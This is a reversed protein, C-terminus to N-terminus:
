ASVDLKSGKHCWSFSERKTKISEPLNGFETSKLNILKVMLNYCAFNRYDKLIETSLEQAHSKSIIFLTSIFKKILDNKSEEPHNKLLFMISETSLKDQKAINFTLFLINTTYHVKKNISLQRNKLVFEYVLTDFFLKISNSIDSSNQLTKKFAIINQYFIKRSEEPAIATFSKLPLTDSDQLFKAFTSPQPKSKSRKKSTSSPELSTKTRTQPPKNHNKRSKLPNLLDPLSKSSALELPESVSPSESSALPAQHAKKDLNKDSEVPELDSLSESSALPAREVTSLSESSALPAREVTSLSESSSLEAQELDSPSKSPALPASKTPLKELHFGFDNSDKQFEITTPDLPNQPTNKSDLYNVIFALDKDTLLTRTQSLKNDKPKYLNSAKDTLNDTSQEVPLAIETDPTRLQPLVNDKPKYLNSAKDTKFILRFLYFGWSTLFIFAEILIVIIIIWPSISQLLPFIIPLSILFTYSLVIISVPILLLSLHICFSLGKSLSTEIPEKEEQSM